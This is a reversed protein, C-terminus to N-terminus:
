PKPSLMSTRVPILQDFPGASPLGPHLIGLRPLLRMIVRVSMCLM